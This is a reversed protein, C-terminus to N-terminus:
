IRARVRPTTTFGSTTTVSQRKTRSELLRLARTVEPGSLGADAQLDEVSRQWLLTRFFHHDHRWGENRIAQFSQFLDLELVPCKKGLRTATIKGINWREIGLRKM